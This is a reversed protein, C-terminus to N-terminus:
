KAEKKKIQHAIKTQLGFLEIFGSSAAQNFTQGADYTALKLDYLANKSDRAVVKASGKYLKLTAQGAVKQNVTDIFANLAEMLPDFWLGAYAMQAWKSDIMEKFLNEHVTSVYKELDKHAEIITVAAPCEYYERSKLGVVRDEMHDIIGVGHKGGIKNLITILKYLEMKKGNLAVPLGKKFKLTVYEPKNPAKEPSVCLQLVDKPVEKDPEEIVGCESSRGWLNEDVSYPSEKTTPVSIGHKKAYEMQKGRTMDWERVPVIVKMKPELTIFSIDFRVQDNGKGSCGHACADAGEKKAIEVAKKAILYRAISSSIPYKGEYLANAKIAKAVYQNAFEKKLDAVYAKTAGCKLAKQKIANLDKCPQGLDATLTIVEVQYVDQIWRLIISTDLGGSYLLVVKKVEGPKAEYTATKPKLKKFKM